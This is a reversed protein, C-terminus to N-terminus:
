VHVLSDVCNVPNGGAVADLWADPLEDGELFEKWASLGEERSFGFGQEGALKVLDLEAKDALAQIVIASLEADSSIKQIFGHAAELSMSTRGLPIDQAFFGFAFENDM